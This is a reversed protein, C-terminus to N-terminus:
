LTDFCTLVNTHEIQLPTYANKDFRTIEFDLSICNM